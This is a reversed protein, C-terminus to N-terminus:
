RWFSYFNFWNQPSQRVYFELRSAYHQVAQQVISMREKRSGELKETLQEFYVDYRNGGQYLAVCMIVPVKLVWSLLWPGLPFDAQSGAFDVVVTQEGPGARDAMMGIMNGEKILADLTLALEPAPMRADVIQEAFGEDLANILSMAANNFNKDMVIKLPLAEDLTGPVRMVDFSGVHSVLLVCGKKEALLPKFVEEGKFRVDFNRQKGALLFVRDVACNAFWYLHQFIDKFSPQRQTFKLLAQNSADRADKGTLYFYLVIPYLLLRIPHRGLLLALNVLLMLMFSNSRERQQQWDSAAQKKGQM